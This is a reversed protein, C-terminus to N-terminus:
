TVWDCQPSLNFFTSQNVERLYNMIVHIYGLKDNLEHVMAWMEPPNGNSQRVLYKYRPISLSM